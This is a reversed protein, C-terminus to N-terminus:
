GAHHLLKAMEAPSYIAIPQANEKVRVLDDAETLGKPLYGRSQAFHFLGKLRKRVNNKSSGAGKYDAIYRQMDQGLVQAIPMQFQAAFKRLRGRLDRVHAESLGEAEKAVLMEELVQAVTRIQLHRPHYRLYCKAAEIMSAGGLLKASEVFQMIAIELPTGTPKLMEMARVYATRDESTLTLVNLEGACIRNAITEAEM